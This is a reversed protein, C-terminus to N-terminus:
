NYRIFFISGFLTLYTPPKDATLPGKASEPSKNSLFTAKHLSPMSIPGLAPAPSTLYPKQMGCGAGVAQTPVSPWLAAGPVQPAPIEPM